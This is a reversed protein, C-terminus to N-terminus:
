LRIEGEDHLTSMITNGAVEKSIMRGEDFSEGFSL